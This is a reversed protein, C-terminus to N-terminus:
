RRGALAARAAALVDRAEAQTDDLHPFVIALARSQREVVAVVGALAEVVPAEFPVALSRSLARVKAAEAHNGTAALRDAVDHLTV